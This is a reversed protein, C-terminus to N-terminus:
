KLLLQWLFLPGRLLRSLCYILILSCLSMLDLSVTLPFMTVSGAVYGQGAVEVAVATPVGYRQYNCAPDLWWGDYRCRPQHHLLHCSM